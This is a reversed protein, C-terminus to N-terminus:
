AAIKQPHDAPGAYPQPLTKTHSLRAAEYTVTWTGSLLIVRLTLITQAGERKWRMGSLKLRSTYITKCAAETLGSGLPLNLRRYEAYRLYRTRTRLYNYAREFAKKQGSRLGRNARLKAASWLVRAPGNPQKLLKRMKAAWTAAARGAGFIAEAMVTLRQAAHCFDVIWFWELRRGTRPHRMPRLVKRYYATEQDGADTVYCLRPLPGTWAALVDTLLQTLADTMTGQGLEPAYALYVTGLRQGRRDLVAITASTAVEFFGHPQTWLTIGDRGVSLVPRHRGRSAEAQQLLELLRQVQCEQRHEDMMSAVADAAARLRKVGWSVGHQERLRRLVSDQTAGAEALYRGVRELLAPTAGEVLGLRQEQPFITPLGDDRSWSRYGHRWLVITGFPTAVYRNPTAENLRRYGDGEYRVDHPLSEPGDAEPRNYAWAVALRNLERAQQELQQEFALTAAPSPTALVFKVVTEVLTEVAPQLQEVLEERLEGVGSALLVSAVLSNTM